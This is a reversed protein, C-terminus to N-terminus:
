RTTTIKARETDINFIKPVRKGMLLIIETKEQALYLGTDACWETIVKMAGRVRDGIDQMERMTNVLAVDDAFDVADLDKVHDLVRRLGDYV